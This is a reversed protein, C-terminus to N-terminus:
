FFSVLLKFFKIIIDILDYFNKQMQMMCHILDILQWKSLDPTAQYLQCVSRDCSRSGSVTPFHRIQRKCLHDISKQPSNLCIQNFARPAAGGKRDSTVQPDTFAPSGKGGCRLFTTKGAPSRHLIGHLTVPATYVTYLERRLSGHTVKPAPQPCATCLLGVTICLKDM